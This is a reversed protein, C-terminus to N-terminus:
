KIFCISFHFGQYAVQWLLGLVTWIVSVMSHRLSPFREEVRGLAIVPIETALSNLIELLRVVRQDTISGLMHHNM